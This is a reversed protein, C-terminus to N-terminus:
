RITYTSGKKEKERGGFFSLVDSDKVGFMPHVEINWHVNPLQIIRKAGRLVNVENGEVDVKILTKWNRLASYNYAKFELEDDLTVVPVNYEISHTKERRVPLYIESSKMPIDNECSVYAYKCTVNKKQSMNELLFGFRFPSAEYAIVHNCHHAGVLSFIGFAAGVDVLLVYNGNKILETIWPQHAGRGRADMYHKEHYSILDGYPTHVVGWEFKWDIKTWGM